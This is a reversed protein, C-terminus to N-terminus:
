ANIGHKKGAKHFAFTFARNEDIKIYLFPCAFIFFLSSVTEADESKKQSHAHAKRM